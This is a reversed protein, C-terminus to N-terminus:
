KIIIKGSRGKNEYTRYRANNGQALWWDRDKKRSLDLGMQKAKMVETLPISAVRIGLGQKGQQNDMLRQKACEETIPEVDQAHIITATNEGFSIDTIIGSM